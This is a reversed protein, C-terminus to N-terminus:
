PVNNRFVNNLMNKSCDCCRDHSRNWGNHDPVLCLDSRLSSITLKHSENDEDTAHSSCSLSSSSSSLPSYM